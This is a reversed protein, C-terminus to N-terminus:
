PPVGPEGPSTKLSAELQIVDGVHMRTGAAALPRTNVALRYFHNFRAANAWAPLTAARQEAFRKAFGPLVEGTQADRTPVVCRQCPNTGGFLADGVLFPLPEGEGAFLRDEWFAEVGDIELNARFRRRVEDLTLGPFWEAVAALTATSVVTPGLAETDDPFGADANEVLRVRLGLYDSLWDELQPRDDALHFSPWDPFGERRLMIREAALDFESRLLQIRATRKANVFEGKLDVLAYRRDGRLAGTVTVDATGVDVGDLSKVPYITIRALRVTAASMPM